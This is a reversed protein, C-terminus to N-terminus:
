WGFVSKLGGSLKDGVDSIANSAESFTNSVSEIAQSGLEKAKGALEVGADITATVGGAVMKNVGGKRMVYDVGMGVGFGVVAGVVTGAGPIISGIAAGAAAGSAGAAFGVAVEGTVTGIAQSGTVEGRNYAGIQDYASFGGNVVGGIVGAGGVRGAMTRVTSNFTQSTINATETGAFRSVVNRAAGNTYLREIGNNVFTSNGLSTAMRNGVIQEGAGSFAGVGTGLLTGEGVTRFAGSYDGQQIQDYAAFSSTVASFAGGMIAGNRTETLLMQRNSTVPIRTPEPAIAVPSGSTNLDQMDLFAVQGNRSMELLTASDPTNDTIFERTGVRDNVNDPRMTTGDGTFLPNVGMSREMQFRATMINQETKPLTSIFIEPTNRMDYGLSNAQNMRGEYDYSVVNQWFSDSETQFRGFNNKDARALDIINGETPIQLRNAAEETYVIVRFDNPNAGAIDNATWGIRSMVERYDMQSGALDEVPLSWAVTKGQGTASDFYALRQNIDSIPKDGTYLMRALYQPREGNQAMSRLATQDLTFLGGGRTSEANLFDTANLISFNPADSPQFGYSNLVSRYEALAQNTLQITDSGGNFTNIGENMVQHYALSAERFAQGRLALNGSSAGATAAPLLRELRDRQQDGYSKFENQKNKSPLVDLPKKEVKPLPKIEFKPLRFLNLKFIDNDIKNPPAM